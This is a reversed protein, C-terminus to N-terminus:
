LDERRKEFMMLPAKDFRVTCGFILVTTSWHNAFTERM